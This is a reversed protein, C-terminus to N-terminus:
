FNRGQDLLTKEPLGYHAIFNDCLAKARALATQSQTVYWQAYCTFHDMM